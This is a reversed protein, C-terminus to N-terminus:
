EEQLASILDGESKWNAYQPLGIIYITKFDICPGSVLM